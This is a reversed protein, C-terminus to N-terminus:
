RGILTPRRDHSFDIHTYNKLIKKKTKVYRFLDALTDWIGNFKKNDYTVNIQWKGYQNKRAIIIKSPEDKFVIIGANILSEFDSTYFEEKTHSQGYFEPRIQLQIKYTYCKSGHYYHPRITYLIDPNDKYYVKKGFDNVIFYYNTRESM